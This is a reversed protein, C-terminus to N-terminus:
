VCSRGSAIETLREALEKVSGILDIDVANIANVPMDKFTAESPAQVMCRGGAESIAKLGEVGDWLMGSLIVGIANPGAYRAATEFLADIREVRRCDKEVDQLSAFREDLVLSKSPPGVYITQCVLKEGQIPDRVRLRTNHQLIGALYNEQAEPNRHTAVIMVAEFDEPLHSILGNIATLGGASAGITVLLNPFAPRSESM